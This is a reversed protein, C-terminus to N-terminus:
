QQKDKTTRFKAYEAASTIRFAIVLSLPIFKHEDDDSWSFQRIARELDEHLRLTPHSRFEFANQARMVADHLLMWISWCKWAALSHGFCCCMKRHAEVTAAVEDLDIKVDACDLHLVYKPNSSNCIGEISLLKFM